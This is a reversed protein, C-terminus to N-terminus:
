PRARGSGPTFAIPSVPPMPEPLVVTAARKCRRPALTTSVSSIERGEGPGAAASPAAARLEARPEDARVAREVAGRHAVQDELVRVRACLELRDQM